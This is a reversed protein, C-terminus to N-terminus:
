INGKHYNKAFFSYTIILIIAIYIPFKFLQYPTYMFWNNMNILFMIYISLYLTYIRSNENLKYLKIHIFRSFLSIIISVIGVLLYGGLSYMWVSLWGGGPIRAYQVLSRKLDMDLPILSSPLLNALVIGIGYYIKDFISFASSFEILYMSSITVEGFHSIHVPIESFTDLSLNSRYLSILIAMGLAVILLFKFNIFKYSNKFILYFTFFYMFMKLREGSIGYVLAITLFAISVLFRGRTLILIVTILPILYEDLPTKNMAIM